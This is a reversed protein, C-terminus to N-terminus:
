FPIEDDLYEEALSSLTVPPAAAVKINYSQLKKTLEAQLAARGQDNPLYKLVRHHQMDFPVDGMSQTIPIVHKGLTHAIGTEYMVNPNKGTFDVIVIQARFILSFVDQIIVSEEWIDDARLCRLNCATCANKIVGFTPSLEAAFPMMVAVLDLEVGGEPPLHFVSPAFTIKRESPKASIYTGEGPYHEDLYSEIIGLASPQRGSMQQLVDLVCSQYDDDGFHLSRLLRSHDSIIKQCNTLLGIAEWDGGDFHAAVRERLSLLRKALGLQDRAPPTYSL